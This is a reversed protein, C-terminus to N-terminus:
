SSGVPAVPAADMSKVPIRTKLSLGEYSAAVSLGIAAIGAGAAVDVCYHYRLYVTSVWLASCPVLLRWFRRRYHWRDFVLLYM